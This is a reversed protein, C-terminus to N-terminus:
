GIEIRSLPTGAQVHKAVEAHREQQRGDPRNLAIRSWLPLQRECWWCLFRTPLCLKSCNGCPHREGRGEANRSVAPPPPPAATPLEAEAPEDNLPSYPTGDPLTRPLWPLNPIDAQGPLWRNPNAPSDLIKSVQCSPCPRGAAIVHRWALCCEHVPGQDDARFSPAGCYRCPGGSAIPQTRATPM